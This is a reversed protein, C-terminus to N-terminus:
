ATLVRLSSEADASDENQEGERPAAGVFRTAKYRGDPLKILLGDKTATLLATRVPSGRDTTGERHVPDGRRIQEDIIEGPTWGRDAEDLLALVKSKVSGTRGLRRNIASRLPPTLPKRGTGELEALARDIRGLEDVLGARAQHLRAIAEGVYDSMGAM